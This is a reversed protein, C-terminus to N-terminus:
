RHPAKGPSEVDPLGRTKLLRAPSGVYVGYPETSRTVVSGAGIVCGRAIRVGDLIRVGAGIWVDDEIVIGQCTLGQESIPIDLRDFQHNGPIIVTHAAIRVNDGIELGGEGYLVAYPNVSCNKGLRISGAHSHLYAFPQIITGPGITINGARAGIDHWYTCNLVAHPFVQARAGIAISRTGYLLAQTSIRCTPDLAAFRPRLWANHLRNLAARTAHVIPRLVSRLNM